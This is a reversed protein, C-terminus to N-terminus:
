TMGLSRCVVKADKDDWEDDCITGWEGNIFVEVRGYYIGGFGALRIGQM